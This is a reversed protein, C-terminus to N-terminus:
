KPAPAGAVSGANRNQCDTFHHVDDDYSKFSPPNKTPNKTGLAEAMIKVIIWHALQLAVDISCIAETACQSGSHPQRSM